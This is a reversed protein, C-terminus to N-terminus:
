KHRAAPATLIAVRLFFASHPRAAPHTAIVVGSVATVTPMLALIFTKM